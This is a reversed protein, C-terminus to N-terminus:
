EFNMSWVFHGYTVGALLLVTFFFRTKEFKVKYGILTMIGSVTFLIVVPWASGMNFLTNTTGLFLHGMIAGLAFPIFFLKDKAAEFLIENSTDNELENLNLMVEFLVYFAAFGIMINRVIRYAEPNFFEEM